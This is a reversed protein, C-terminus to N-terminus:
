FNLLFLRMQKLGPAYQGALSHVFDAVIEPFGVANRYVKFAANFAGRQMKEIFDRM